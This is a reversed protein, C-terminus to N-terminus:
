CNEYIESVVHFFSGITLPNPNAVSAVMLSGAAVCHAALKVPPPTCCDVVVLTINKALIVPNTSNTFNIGDTFLKVVRASPFIYTIGAALLNLM